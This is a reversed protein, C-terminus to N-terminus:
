FSNEETMQQLIRKVSTEMTIHFSKLGDTHHIHVYNIGHNGTGSIRYSLTVRVEEVFMKRAKKSVAKHIKAMEVQLRTM